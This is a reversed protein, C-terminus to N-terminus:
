EAGGGEGVCVRGRVGPAAWRYPKALKLHKEISGLDALTNLYELYECQRGFKSNTFVRHLEHLDLYRFGAAAASSVHWFLKDFMSARTDSGGGQCLLLWSSSTAELYLATSPTDPQQFLLLWWLCQQSLRGM